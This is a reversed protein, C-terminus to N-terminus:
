VQPHQLRSAPYPYCVILTGLSVRSAKTNPRQVLLLIIEHKAYIHYKLFRIVRDIISHYKHRM